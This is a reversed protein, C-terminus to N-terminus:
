DIDDLTFTVDRKSIDVDWLTYTDGDEDEARIDYMSGKAKRITVRVTHGDPLIDDDLVDEEWDSAHAPSVYLYHIDFGTDNTVEVYGNFAAATTSFLCGIALLALARTLM